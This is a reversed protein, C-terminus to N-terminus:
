HSPVPPTNKLIFYSEPSFPCFNGSYTPDIKNTKVIVTKPACKITEADTAHRVVETDTAYKVAESDTAYKQSTYSYSAPAM